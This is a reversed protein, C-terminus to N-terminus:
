SVVAAFTTGDALSFRQAPASGREPLPEIKGYYKGLVTLMAERSLVKESAWENAGGVDM